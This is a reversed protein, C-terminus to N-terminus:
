KINFSENYMQQYTKGGEETVYTFAKQVMSSIGQNRNGSFGFSFIDYGWKNPGKHGNIDVVFVPSVNALYRGYGIIYTGDSLVFVPYNNKVKSDSFNVNPDHEKDPNIEDNVANVGRFGKPLCGQEYAHDKCIKTTKLTNLFLEEYFSACEAMSGNIDGPLPEGTEACQYSICTGYENEGTCEITCKGTYPNNEDWYFCKVPRGEKTQIGIVGQWFTSYFKKFQNKLVAQQINRSITPITLAAVVGIIGLTILVEALTFAVKKKYDNLRYSTLVNLEKSHAESVTKNESNYNTMNSNYNTNSGKDIKNYPKYHWGVNINSQCWGEGSNRVSTGRTSIRGEGALPSSLM